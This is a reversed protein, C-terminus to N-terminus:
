VGRPTQRSLRKILRQALEAMAAPPERNVDRATGELLSRSLRAALQEVVVQSRARAAQAARSALDHAQPLLRFTAAGHALSLLATAHHEAGPRALEEVQEWAAFFGASDGTAAAARGINAAVQIRESPRAIFPLVAEFVPRAASHYGHWAWLFACDHALQAFRDDFRGYLRLATSAHDMGEDFTGGYVAICLLEHRAYAGLKRLKFRRAARWARQQMARARDREGRQELLAGWRILALVYAENDGQRRALAFGYRYWDQARDLSGNRRAARGAYLARDPDRPLAAAAAEAFSEEVGGHGADAAWDSVATCADAVEHELVAEPSAVLRALVQAPRRLGAEELPGTGCPPGGAHSAFLSARLAPPTACWLLVDRFRQWLACGLPGRVDNLIPVGEFPWWRVRPAPPLTWLRPPRGRNPEPRNLITM